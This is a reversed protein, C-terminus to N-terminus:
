GGIRRLEALDHEDKSRLPYGTHARLQADVSVCAVGRGNLSGTTFAAAPYDYWTGDPGAQRGSGDAAFVVPHLDVWARGSRVLEVRVPLWDTEVAYGRDQLCTLAGHLDEADVLLDLDRHERTVRGALVAVGFGGCVWSRVGRTVRAELVEVVEEVQM